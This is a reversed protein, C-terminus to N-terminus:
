SPHIIKLTFSLQVVLASHRLLSVPGFPSLATLLAQMVKIHLSVRRGIMAGSIQSLLQLWNM